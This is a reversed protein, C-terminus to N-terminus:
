TSREMPLGASKLLLLKLLRETTAKKVIEVRRPTILQIQVMNAAFTSRNGRRLTILCAILALTTNKNTSNSVNAASM